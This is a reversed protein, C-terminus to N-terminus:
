PAPAQGVGGALEFVKNAVAYALKDANERTDAEAYVRVVDETGSPRVFSRGQPTQEVLENIADQLGAPTVCIREADTTTIVTRDAVKVKLQRNPLDNYMAAWQETSMGKLALIAEVMLLDSIADGVTQNILQVFDGLMAGAQRASDTAYEAKELTKLAKDNFLVTGHGNAEFYVGVGFDLAKHHLHKVGTKAFAVPVKAENQLFNSSGGNAYATQVVGLDLSLGAAAALENLYGAALSAIRDGDLLCFQGARQFYYVLRDADGDFSACREDGEFTMNSPAGQQVKVYDAGCKENLPGEGQNCLEAEFVGALLPLLAAFKPAGVGNACDVKLKIPLSVNAHALLRKFAAAHKAYYGAETPEGFSSDNHARVLYHLQPTTLNGFDECHAGVALCGDKVAQVLAPSSKRTDSGVMVKAQQTMDVGEREAISKLTAEVQEDACNALEVAHAEWSAQLMEGMPDVQPTSIHAPLSEQARSRLAALAGLRFMVPDLIDASTRFGATGYTYTLGLSPHANLGAQMKSISGAFLRNLVVNGRERDRRKRKLSPSLSLRSLSLCLCVSVCVCVSAKSTDTAREPRKPLAAM